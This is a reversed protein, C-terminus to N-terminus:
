KFLQLTRLISHRSDYYLSNYVCFRLAAVYIGSLRKLNRKIALLDCVAM